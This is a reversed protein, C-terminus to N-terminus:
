QNIRSMGATRFWGLTADPVERYIIIEGIKFDEYDGDALLQKAFEEAKERVFFIRPDVTSHICDADRVVIKFIDTIFM